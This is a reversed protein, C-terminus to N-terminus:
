SPLASTQWNPLAARLARPLADALDTAVIGRMGQERASLDGAAGHWYVAACAADFPDLGGALLAGVVGTLVDGMGGSGMGPNGTPNVAIRGDPAAVVTRAGKLAVVARTRSALTEAARFRDGQVEATSQGLLRAAEGPHPTLVVCAREGAPELIRPEVALHNLADADLVVGLGAGCAAEILGRLIPRMREDTPMGPGAALARKGGVLTSLDHGIEYAATMLEPMRGDVATRAGTPTAVTVLGAGARLAGRGALLAAGTHGASGALVLVHGHTGKHALPDDTVLPALVSDGLLRGRVRHAEALREPIGIDVVHLEGTFTFGPAGVLGRKAFGFTVTHHARVCGSPGGLPVGRDSDLGSPVDVAVRLGAHANIREVALAFHGALPRDLGTGFLADVVVQASSTRAAADALAPESAGDLVEVRSRRCADFHLKADGRLKAEPACLIVQVRAGRNALHRAVVFGDGGNNGAGAFVVVHARSADVLKAIVEVVGRGASEMLVAGPVGVQEIVEKDLARMEAASVVFRRM